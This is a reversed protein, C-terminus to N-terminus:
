FQTTQITPCTHLRVVQGKKSKKDKSNKLKLSSSKRTGKENLQSPISGPKEKEKNKNQKM